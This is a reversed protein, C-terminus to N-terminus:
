GTRFSLCCKASVGGDEGGAFGQLGCLGRGRCLRGSQDTTPLCDGLWGEGLGKGRWSAALTPDPRFSMARLFLGDGKRTAAEDKEDAQSEGRLTILTVMRVPMSGGCSSWPVKAIASGLGLELAPNGNQGTGGLSKLSVLANVPSQM